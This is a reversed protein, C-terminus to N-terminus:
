LIGAAPVGQLQWRKAKIRQQLPKSSRWRSPQIASPSLTWAPTLLCRSGDPRPWGWPFCLSQHPLPPSHRHYPPPCQNKGQLNMLKLHEACKISRGILHHHSQVLIRNWCVCRSKHRPSNSQTCTSESWPEWSKKEWFSIQLTESM